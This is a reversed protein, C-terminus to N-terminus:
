SWTAVAGLMKEKHGVGDAPTDMNLACSIAMVMAGHHHTDVFGPLMTKGNLDSVNTQDGVFAEVGSSDGVYVIDTGRVAVAEAWPRKEDVTYVRGNTFVFDAAKEQARADRRGPLASLLGVLCIAAVVRNVANM